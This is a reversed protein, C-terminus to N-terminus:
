LIRVLSVEFIMYRRRLQLDASVHKYITWAFEHYLKWGIFSVLFSGVGLLVPVAITTRQMRTELEPASEGDTAQVKLVIKLHKLTDQIQVEQLIGYLCLAWNFCCIGIVQITNKMRLADWALGLMYIMGFIFLALFTPLSRSYPVYNTIPRGFDDTNNGDTPPNDSEILDWNLGNEFAYLAWSELGLVVVLEIGVVALLLWQWLSDPKFM